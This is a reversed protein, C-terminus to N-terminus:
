SAVAYRDDAIVTRQDYIKKKKLCFVAYSIQSHSSNLRTSKRDRAKRAVAQIREVVLVAVFDHAAPHAEPRVFARVGRQRQAVPVRQIMERRVSAAVRDAVVLVLEIASGGDPEVQTVNEGGAGFATERGSPM